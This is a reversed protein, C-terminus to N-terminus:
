RMQRARYGAVMQDLEAGIHNLDLMGLPSVAIAVNGRVELSFTNVV